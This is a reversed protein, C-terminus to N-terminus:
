PAMDLILLVSMPGVPLEIGAAPDFAIPSFMELSDRSTLDCRYAKKIKKGELGGVTIHVPITVADDETVPRFLMDFWDDKRERKALVKGDFAEVPHWIAIALREADATRLRYSRMRPEVPQLAGEPGPKARSAIRVPYVGNFCCKPNQTFLASLNRYVHGMPRLGELGFADTFWLSFSDEGFMDKYWISIEIGLYIEELLHRALYAAQEEPGGTYTRWNDWRFHDRKERIGFGRESDFVGVRHGHPSCRAVIERLWAVDEELGSEPVYDPRHYGHFSVFDVTKEALLDHKELVQEIFPRDMWAVSCVATKVEPALEKIMYCAQRAMQTYVAPDNWFGSMAFVEPENGIEWIDIKGRYRQACAAMFNAVAESVKEYAKQKVALDHPFAPEDLAFVGLVRFGREFYHAVMRDTAAWDYRGAESPEIKNWRFDLRLWHAGIRANDDGMFLTHINMGFSADQASFVMPEDGWPPKAEVAAEVPGISAFLFLPFLFGAFAIAQTRFSM